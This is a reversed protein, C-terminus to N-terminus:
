KVIPYEVNGLHPVFQPAWDALGQKLVFANYGLIRLIATAQAAKQLTGSVLVVEKRYPIKTLNAGLLRFPINVSGPIHGRNFAQPSRLDVIMPAHSTSLLNLLTNPGITWPRGYGEPYKQNLRTWFTAFPRALRFPVRDNGSPPAVNRPPAISSTVLPLPSVESATPWTDLLRNWASTGWRLSYANYGLLRLLAPTMEGGDGDYCFVVVPRHKPLPFLHIHAIGLASMMTITRPKQTLLEQGMDQLPINHSGAIHGRSYGDPGFPQRVDILVPRNYPRNIWTALQAATVEYDHHAAAVAFYRAITRKEAISLGYPNPPFRLSASLRIVGGIGVVAAILSSVMWWKKWKKM